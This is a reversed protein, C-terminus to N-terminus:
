EYEELPDCYKIKCLITALKAALRTAVVPALKMHEGFLAVQEVDSESLNYDNWDPFNLRYNLFEQTVAMQAAAEKAVKTQNVFEKEPTNPFKIIEAM